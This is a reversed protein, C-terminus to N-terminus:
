SFLSLCADEKKRMIQKEEMTQDGYGILHLIGHVLVRKLENDFSINQNQANERIRDISIFIDGEIFGEDDSQDFTIIDTYYDHDLYEQNIRLLYTDDCFIFNLDGLKLDHHLIVKHLWKNIQPKKQLNFDTQESFFEIPM